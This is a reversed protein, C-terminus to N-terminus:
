YATPSLPLAYPGAQGTAGNRQVGAGSWVALHRRETDSFHPKAAWLTVQLLRNEETLHDIVHLRQRDAMMGSVIPDLFRHLYSHNFAIGASRSPLEAYSCNRSYAREVIM